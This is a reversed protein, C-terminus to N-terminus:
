VVEERQGIATTDLDEPRKSRHKRRRKRAGSTDPEENIANEGTIAVSDAKVNRGEVMRVIQKQADEELPQTKIYEMKRPKKVSLPNPGKPGRKRKRHDREGARVDDQPDGDRSGKEIDDERKRIGLAEGGIKGRLGSRMKGRETGERVSLSREAMPEMVMVSRKVYIVPVGNVARCWHRVDKDQVAVVYNFKNVLDKDTHTSKPDIVSSLCELASLPNELTHHNCRRREMNKATAIMSEKQPHESPALAYLHRMSCQTIMPKVKGSLTRSLSTPLDMSFRIADQLMQADVSYPYSTNASDVAPPVRYKGLIQYPERFSFTLVYQRM